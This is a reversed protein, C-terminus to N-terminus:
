IKLGFAELEEVALPDIKMAAARDAEAKAKEGKRSWIVARGMLPHAARPRISLAKNFDALAEDLRGLQLYTIARSDLYAMSNPDRRLAENCDALAGALDVKNLARQYCFNNYDGAEKLEARVAAFDQSSQAVKGLKHLLIGRNVKVSVDEPNAKILRDYLGLAGAGDGQRELLLAKLRLAGRNQPELKLAAEIDALRGAVDTLSRSTARSLYIFAEAKGALARRYLADAKNWAGLRAYVNAASVLSGADSENAPLMADAEALAEENKGRAKFITARLVRLDNWKPRLKLAAAADALADDERGLAAQAQARRGLSFHDNPNGVIASSYAKVASELEGKRHALIGRARSLFPKDQAVPAAQELLQAASDFDWLYTRAIALNIMAYESQPDLKLAQEFDGAAEKNRGTDLFRLGRDIYGTSTTPKANLAERTERDNPVYSGPVRILLAEEWLDKLRASAAHAERYSIEPVLSRESTEITIMDDALKGRRRYEVGAVTEAIEPINQIRGNGFGPPLKISHTVRSFFPHSMKFPAEKFPGDLREFDPEFGLRTSDPEYGGNWDMKTEGDVTLKLQRTSRDFSYGVTKATLDSYGDKWFTKQMQERQAASASTLANHLGAAFDGRFLTEIRTPAAVSIGQTADIRISTEVSPQTLPPPTMQVLQAAATVPLVWGLDPTQLLSLSTDGTRTGDLWYARGGVHARVLVHNFLSVMPLRGNISDGAALSALVPEAKIGLEGLVALLLATKGKCDGFRRSWTTEATAPVYGNAGMLLAVYRVRDQVLALAAETQKLPDNSGRRIKEVEERLAGTAPIVAAERYLPAMLQAVQDWSQFDTVELIRGIQYRDPAGKPPILPEVADLAIEVSTSGGRTQPKTAPLGAGSRTRFTASAPWEVRARGRALSIGNWGALGHELHGKMVPDQRVVTTALEITDGVQLGEPQINATLVGDLMASELNSERRLVTFQQGAALVDIAKGDRLLRLGNVTATDTDPRWVFSINGASLGEPTHIQLAMRVHTVLKGDELRVQEDHLLYSLPADAAAQPAKPLTVPKVWSPAPGYHLKEDAAAPSSALLAVSALLLRRM